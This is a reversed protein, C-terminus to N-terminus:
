MVGLAWAGAVVWGADLAGAPPDEDDDVPLGAESALATVAVEGPGATRPATTVFDAEAVVNALAVLEDDFTGPENAKAPPEWCSSMVM